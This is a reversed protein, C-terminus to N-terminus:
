SVERRKKSPDHDPRPAQLDGGRRGSSGAALIPCLVAPQLQVDFVVACRQGRNRQTHAGPCAEIAIVRTQRVKRLVHKEL